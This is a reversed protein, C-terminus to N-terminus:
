NGGEVYYTRRNIDNDSFVCNEYKTMMTQHGAMLKLVGYFLMICIFLYKNQKKNLIEFVKPYLIWYPFIFLAAVREIMIMFESCFLTIFIYLYFTRIFFDLRNDTKKIKDSLCYILVFSTVREIYGFTLGYSASHTENELYRTILKLIGFQGSFINLITTLLPKLWQIRLLFFLNGIIFLISIKTKSLSVYRIFYLPIFLIASTHFLLGCLNIILYKFIKGEILYDISLLFLMIAKANRLLNIEILNGQFLFYFCFGFLFNQGLYKKFFFYLVVFDILFSIFQFFFYNNWISKILITYLTFGPEFLKGVFDETRFLHVRKFGDRLVPCCNYFYNYNVFDSYIYSRLGLFFLSFFVITLGNLMKISAFKKYEKCELGLAFLLIFYVIYPISFM